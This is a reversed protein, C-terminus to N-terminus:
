ELLGWFPSTLCSTNPTCVGLQCSPFTENMSSIHLLCTAPMFTPLSLLPARPLPTCVRQDAPSIHPSLSPDWPFPCIWPSHTLLWTAPTPPRLLCRATSPFTSTDTDTCPLLTPLPVPWCLPLRSLSSARSPNTTLAAAQTPLPGPELNLLASGHTPWDPPLFTPIM